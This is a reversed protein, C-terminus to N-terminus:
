INFMSILDQREEHDERGGGSRGEQEGRVMVCQFSFLLINFSCSPTCSEQRMGGNRGEYRGKMGAKRGDLDECEM